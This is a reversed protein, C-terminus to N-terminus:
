ISPWVFYARTPGWRRGFLDLDVRRTQIRERFHPGAMWTVARAIAGCCAFGVRAHTSSMRSERAMVRSKRPDNDVRAMPVCVCMHTACQASVSRPYFRVADHLPHGHIHVIYVKRWHHGFPSSPQSVSSTRPDVVYIQAFRQAWHVSKASLWRWADPLVACCCGCRCRVNKWAGHYVSAYVYIKWYYNVIIEDESLTSQNCPSLAICIHIRAVSYIYINAARYLITLYINFTPPYKRCLPMVAKAPILM